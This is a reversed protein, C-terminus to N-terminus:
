RARSRRRRPAGQVPEFQGPVTQGTVTCLPGVQYEVEGRIRLPRRSTTLMSVEPCSTLIEAIPGAAATLQELNDLVVLVDRSALQAAVETVGGATLGLARTVEPKVLRHDRVGALPVFLVDGRAMRTRAVAVALRTKGVGGPGTLTVLRHEASDLLEGVARVDRERGLLRDIPAPLPQRSGGAFARAPGRRRHPVAAILAARADASLTLADSLARVTAPYPHTRTGRELASVADDSVGAQDALEEQSLGAAERLSRLLGGFRGSAGSDSGGPSM